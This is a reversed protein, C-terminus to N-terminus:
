QLGEPASLEGDKTVGLAVVLLVMVATALKLDTPALGMRVAAAIIIQYLLSGTVSAVVVFLPLSLRRQPFVREGITLAALALILVGQGMGIDAFGERMALFVGSLAALANTLGLAAVVYASTHFGLSRAFDANSGVARMRIGLYTSLFWKAVLVCLVACGGLLTLTGLEFSGGVGQNLEKVWHLDFLSPAQLLGINSGHMIRLTLSYCIALVIVGALLKNVSFRVHLFATLAGALAGAACAVILAMGMPLGKMILVAYVGAGLPLSGEVTLDPFGFLRFALGFGLVAWSLLLGMVLGIDLPTLWTM